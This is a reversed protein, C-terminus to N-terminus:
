RVGRVGCPQDGARHVGVEEVGGAREVVRVAGGSVGGGGGPALVVGPVGQQTGHAAREPQVWAGAAEVDEVQTASSVPGIKFAVLDDEQIVVAPLFGVQGDFGQQDM